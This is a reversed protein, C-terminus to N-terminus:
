CSSQRTNKGRCEGLLILSYKGIQLLVPQGTPRVVLGDLLGDLAIADSGFLLKMQASELLFLTVLAM